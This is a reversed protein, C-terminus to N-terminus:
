KQAKAALKRLLTLRKSVGGRHFSTERREKFNREIEMYKEVDAKMNASMVTEETHEEAAEEAM